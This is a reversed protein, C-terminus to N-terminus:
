RRGSKGGDSATRVRVPPPGTRPGLLWDLREKLEEEQIQGQVRFEIRGEQDLLATAPVATGLGLRAMDDPTADLWISFDVNYKSVFEPVNKRTKRDDASAAIFVVGKSRYNEEAKALMPMEASCPACWTAWFNLVVVKGLYDSLRVRRGDLSKLSLEAKPGPGAAFALLGGAFLAPLSRASNLSHIV